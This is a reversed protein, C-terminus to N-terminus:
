AAVEAQLPESAFDLHAFAQLRETRSLVSAVWDCASADLGYLGAVLRDVRLEATAKRGPPALRVAQAAEAIALAQGHNWRATNPSPIPLSGLVKPTVYPHSRWETEGSRAVHLALMVSSCLVGELYHLFFDPADPKLLYHFVVQNTVSGSTDVSANLGLGTKRVLLKPRAYV